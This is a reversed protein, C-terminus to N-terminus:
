EALRHHEFIGRTSQIFMWALLLGLVADINIFGNSVFNEILGILSLILGAVPAAKIKKVIGWGILGAAAFHILANFLTGGSVSDQTFIASAVVGILGLGWMVAYFFSMFSGMRIMIKRYNPDTAPPWFLYKWKWKEM